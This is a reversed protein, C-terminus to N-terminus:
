SKDAVQEQPNNAVDSVSREEDGVSLYKWFAKFAKEADEKIDTTYEDDYPEFLSRERGCEALHRYCEYDLIAEALKRNVGKPVYYQIKFDSFWVMLVARWNRRFTVTYLFDPMVENLKNIEKALPYHFM